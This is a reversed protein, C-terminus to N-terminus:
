QQQISHDLDGLFFDSSMSYWMEELSVSEYPELSYAADIAIQTSTETGMETNRSAVFAHEQASAASAQSAPSALVMSTMAQSPTTGSAGSADSRRPPVHSIKGSSQRSEVATVVGERLRRCGEVFQPTQGLARYVAEVHETTGRLLEVDSRVMRKAPNKLIHLALAVAALFPQTPTSLHQSLAIDDDAMELVQHAMARAAATCIGQSQLLRDRLHVPLPPTVQPSESSQSQRRIEDLFTRTPFVMCARFLTIQAQYYQLSLFSAIHIHQPHQMMDHHQGPRLGQPVSNVWALLLQDLKGTEYLLHGPGYTRKRYILESIQGMIRALSVWLTFFKLPTTTNIEEHSNDTMPAEAAPDDLSSLPPWAPPPPTRIQDIEHETIVSPRGTELEMLRELAYCSWWVRAELPLHDSDSNALNVSISSAFTPHSASLHRHLGISHAVRIAQGTLQWCQGDKSKGRMAVGLLVLAQISSLYPHAMLAGYLSYAATLYAKGMDTAGGEMEDAGICLIALISVVPAADQQGKLFM